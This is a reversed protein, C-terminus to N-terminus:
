SNEVIKNIKDILQEKEESSGITVQIFQLENPDLEEIMEKRLKVEIPKFNPDYNSFGPMQMPCNLVPYDLKSYEESIQLLWTHPKDGCGCSGCYSKTSDVSSTKLFVCPTNITSGGFCSLVRLQKTATDTKKNGIGRSVLSAAFMMMKQFM